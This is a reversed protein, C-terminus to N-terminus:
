ATHRRCKRQGADWDEMPIVRGCEICDGAPHPWRGNPNMGHAVRLLITLEGAAGQCRTLTSAVSAVYAPDSHVGINKLAAASEERVYHLRSEMLEVLEGVEM